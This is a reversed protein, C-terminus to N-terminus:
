QKLIPLTSGASPMILVKADKGKLNLAEDVAQQVTEFPRFNVSEVTEDPLDSVMFIQCKQLIMAIAAAKHGGLKFDKKIDSIMQSPTKTTMWTEFTKEGFGEKASACLIIIGDEKVAHKANDLGKQSQYLNIDKPYGGPSVVVIDAPANLKVGYLRDLYKCGDRHATLYDGSVAYVIEKSADLVVNVIFDIKIFDAVQDMDQRVPNTTLNGARAEPKIMNSHNAQIAQWSSAGPMIAKAGGSYGAFYHYEINGLCVIRDAKVLPEFIDVPTGNNCTGLNVCQDMDSDIVKVASNFVTEGVLQKQEAESHKRHSGLALVVTIDAEAVGGQKLEDIVPPLVRYSPMPRTIDSTIICVTEGPNVIDRLRASDIPNELAQKVAAEGTIPHEIANPLLEGAFNDDPITFGIKQKAFKIEKKM